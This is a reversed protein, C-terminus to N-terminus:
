RLAGPANVPDRERRLFDLAVEGLLPADTPREAWDLQLADAHTLWQGPHLRLNGAAILETGQRAGLHGEILNNVLRAQSPPRRVSVGATNILTNHALLIGTSRNVDLGVDNCHAVINNAALGQRHEHPECRDARCAAPDTGGGGFSIGVRVGAQSIGKPTCVVLNREFHGGEGAGKMFLGYAVGNGSAKVFHSVWNDEVRWHSAGVLDLLAVPKHTQRAGTNTLTNHTLRGHDPWENNWGNVKIHANFDTIRNNRITVHTARGVVHFAHECDDHRACTGRIDLNEFVWHPRDVLVGEVQEFSFWVTGPHAARLAIPAGPQGDHGLRLKTQFPYLGPAVVIQTGPQASLLAERIAQPTDAHLTQSLGAVAPLLTHPQQGKGMSPLPGAPPEREIHRQAAHLPPLLVAELKPHGELRRLTYRIIEQPSRSSWELQLLQGTPSLALGFALPVLIALSLLLVRVVTHKRM